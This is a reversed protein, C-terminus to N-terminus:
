GLLKKRAAQSVHPPAGPGKALQRLAEAPVHDLARVALQPPTKPNRALALAIAPRQVWEKRDGILGLLDATMQANKAIALVDDADLQPNKLVFPHLTRDRDRLIANREDRNGHLALQVKELRTPGDSRPATRPESLADHLGAGDHLGPADHRGPADHMVPRAPEPAVPPQTGQTARPLRQMMGAPAPTSPRTGRPWPATVDLREHRAPGSGPADTGSAARRSGEVLEPNISVAVGFGTLVQLVKVDGHLSTGDPLVLELQVPTDLTLNSADHVKVLLGGRAMQQAVDDRLESYRAYAIRFLVHGPGSM